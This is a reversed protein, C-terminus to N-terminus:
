STGSAFASCIGASAIKPVYCAGCNSFHVTFCCYCCCCCCYYYQPHCLQLLLLRVCLVSFLFSFSIWLLFRFCISFSYEGYVITPYIIKHPVLDRMRFIHSVCVRWELGNLQLRRTHTHQGNPMAIFKDHIQIKLLINRLKMCPQRSTYM